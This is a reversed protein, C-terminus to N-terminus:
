NKTNSEMELLRIRERIEELYISDPYSALVIEYAQQAKLPDRLGFEYVEGVKIQVLDCYYSEPFEDILKRYSVLANEYDKSQFYLDGLKLLADDRLNKAGESESLKKFMERAGQLDRQEYRLEANAYMKLYQTNEKNEKIFMTYELADNVYSDSSSSTPLAPSNQIKSFEELAADFNGSWFEVQGKKFIATQRAQIQLRFKALIEQNWVRAKEIEGQQIYCDGIRFLAKNTYPKLPPNKIVERFSKEAEVPNLYHNLQIEGIRFFSQKAYPTREYQQIIEQYGQMAQTYDATMEYANAVGFKAQAAYPSNPYRTLLVKYAKIAHQYAGENFANRAFQYLESGVKKKDKKSRSSVYEDILSFEELAATYNSTRMYFAALLNRLDVNEEDMRIQELLVKEIEGAIEEDSAFSTINYEVYSYQAPNNKLFELYLLVAEKHEMKARHLNAIELLFLNKDNIKQRAEKYLQIAEDYMRNSIYKGAVIQYVTRNQPSKSIINRWITLAKEKEGMKFYVEGLDAEVRYGPKILLMKNVTELARKYNSLKLLNTKVGTYYTLNPPEEDWLREYLELARAFQSTREYNRAVQLLRAQREKNSQKQQGYLMTVSVLVMIIIINGSRKMM